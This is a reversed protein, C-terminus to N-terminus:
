EMEWSIQFSIQLDPIVMYNNPFMYWLSDGFDILSDLLKIQRWSLWREELEM